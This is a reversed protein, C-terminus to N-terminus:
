AARRKRSRKEGNVAAEQDTTFKLRLKFNAVLQQLVEVNVEEDDAAWGSLMVGGNKRRSRGVARFMSRAANVYVWCKGRPISAGADRMRHTRRLDQDLLVKTATLVEM